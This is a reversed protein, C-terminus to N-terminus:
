KKKGSGSGNGNNGCLTCQKVNGKGDSTWLRNGKGYEATQFKAAPTNDPCNCAKITM